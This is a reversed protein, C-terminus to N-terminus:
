QTITFDWPDTRLHSVVFQVEPFATSLQEAATELWIWEGAWHSVDILSLSHAGAVAAERADQVPHHRLDSTLYVDAKAEIAAQIFSDGAGGCVAVRSIVRDYDGAVRIGQATSPLVRAVSRAFDGLTISQELNGVRGHGVGQIAGPVLAQTDRIGLANALSWSVGTEVIDANTHAAYVDVGARIARAIVAGKSTSEAVTTVGRMLYPHHSLVMDFQGDIAEDILESTIDVSLLVRSVKRGESGIILGPADWPEAGKLPWLENFYAILASSLVSM